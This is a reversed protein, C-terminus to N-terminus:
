LVAQLGKPQGPKTVSSELMHLTGIWCVPCERTMGDGHLGQIMPLDYGYRTKRSDHLLNVYGTMIRLTAVEARLPRTAVVVRRHM